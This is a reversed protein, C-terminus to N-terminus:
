IKNKKSRKKKVGLTEVVDQWNYRVNIGIRFSPLDGRKEQAAATPQTIGLRRCLEVRNIIEIPQAPPNLANIKSEIASLREVIENFPNEM